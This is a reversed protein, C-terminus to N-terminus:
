RAWHVRISQEGDGYHFTYDGKYSRSLAEGIRRAIHIGTTTVLTHDSNEIISMIRELPRENKEQSEVNHILNFIEDHHDQFFSGKLVIQGAPYHDACRRCAPCSTLHPKAPPKKWSWRGNAYLVGCDSCLTPEPWKGKKQYADHRKEKIFRDKREYSGNGMM